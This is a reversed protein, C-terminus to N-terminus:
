PEHPGRPARQRPRRPGRPERGARNPQMIEGIVRFMFQGGEVANQVYNRIRDGYWAELRSFWQDIEVEHGRVVPKLLKDYVLTTGRGRERNEREFEKEM